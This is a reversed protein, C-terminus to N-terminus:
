RPLSRKGNVQLRKQSFFAATSYYKAYDLDTNNWNLDSIMGCGSSIVIVRPEKSNKMSPFVKQTLLFNSLVNVVFDPDQKESTLSRDPNYSGAAHVLVDLKPHKAVFHTGFNDINEILSLDLSHCHMDDNGSEPVLEQILRECRDLNRSIMHVTAGRKAFELSLYKGILGTAGTVMFVKGALDVETDTPVFYKERELYGDITSEHTKNTLYVGVRWYYPVDFTTWVVVGLACVCLIIIDDKDVYSM